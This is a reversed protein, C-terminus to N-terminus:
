RYYAAYDLFRFREDRFQIDPTIVHMWEPVIGQIEALLDSYLCLQLITAGKTERALKCDYVEYSWRGLESPQEVRRLVDARGFWPGVSLTAQAIVEAGARMATLTRMYSQTEDEIDNLDIVPLGQSRLYDLYASEHEIGRQQLVWADPSRWEPAPTKGVAVSLDLTTVHRCSLHNSLDTASLRIQGAHMKM